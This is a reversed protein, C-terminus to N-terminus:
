QHDAAFVACFQKANEADIRGTLQTVADYAQRYEASGRAQALQKESAGQELVKIKQRIKEVAGSDISGCFKLASEAVALTQANPATVDAHVLPPVVLTACAILACRGRLTSRYMIIIRAQLEQM